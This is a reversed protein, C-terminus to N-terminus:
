ATKPKNADQKAKQEELAEAKRAAAQSAENAKLAKDKAAQWTSRFGQFQAEIAALAPDGQPLTERAKDREAMLEKRKADAKLFEDFAAQGEDFLKQREKNAEELQGTTVESIEGMLNPAPIGPDGLQSSIAATLEGRDTTNLAIAAMKVPAGGGSGM